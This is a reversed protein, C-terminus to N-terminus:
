GIHANRADHLLRAYLEATAEVMAEVSWSDNVRSGAAAGMERRARDDTLLRAIRAALATRDGQPVIYGTVGDAVIERVGDVEFSVVPRETAAAQVLVRPLGEWMSTLTVVDMAAFMREVDNRYGAFLFRDELGAARVLDRIKEGEPGDGVSLFWLRERVEAPLVIGPPLAADPSVANPASTEPSASAGSRVSTGTALLVQAAAILHPYGKRKEHRSVTGVILADAPIQLERRVERAATEGAAGAPAAAAGRFRDLEMGSHIVSYREPSGIGAELYQQRMEEGVCVFAATYRGTWRELFRFLVRQVGGMSPHFSIGHIGHVIVPVRERRAAMRGLIGAKSGHTHVIRYGGTRIIARLERVASLEAAPAPDPQLHPVPLLRVAPHLGTKDLSGRESPGGIALDVEYRTHDLGNITHLTNDEAGGNALRTLIHLVRVARNDSDPRNAQRTFYARVGDDFFGDPM